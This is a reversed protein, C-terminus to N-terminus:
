FDLRLGNTWQFILDPISSLLRVDNDYNISFQTRLSLKKSLFLQGSAVGSIRNNNWDNLLPQFYFTTAVKFKDKVSHNM